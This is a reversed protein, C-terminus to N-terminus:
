EEEGETGLSFDPWIAKGLQGITGALDGAFDKAFKSAELLGEASVEYWRRNPSKEDASEVLREFEKAAQPQKEPPLKSILARTERELTQLLDRREGNSQQNIISTCNEMKAAVPGTFNGGSINQQIHDGSMPIIPKSEANFIFTTAAGEAEAKKPGRVANLAERVDVAIIESSTAGQAFHKPVRNLDLARLHRYGLLPADPRGPVPVLEDVTLGEIVSHMDEFTLRVTDLADRADIPDGLVSITVEKKEADGIVRARAGTAFELVCGHRWPGPMRSLQLHRRAIFSPVLAAPLVPYRYVFCLTGGMPWVHEPERESLLQPVLMRHQPNYEQTDYLLDFRRMVQVIMPHRAVAYGGKKLIRAFDNDTVLGGATRVAADGLVAYVAKTVWEPNLIATDRMAPPDDPRTPFYRVTGLKDWLDLLKEPRGPETEGEAECLKVYEELPITDQKTEELTRKIGLWINNMPERVGEIGLAETGLTERLKDIGDGTWCSTRLFGRIAPFKRRLAHEDPGAGHQDSKNVAVWIPAGAGFSTAMQLWYELNNQRDNARADAVLLYVARRTLFFAHTSHYIEQGGFDWLNLRLTEDSENGAALRGSRLPLGWHKQVIGDTKNLTQALKGETLALVLSSKGVEAEGLVLVKAENLPRAGSAVMRTRHAFYYDLIEAPPKPRAKQSHVDAYTPGLVEAPLGLKPNEHLYLGRLSKLKTIELPLSTLQNNDLWLDVLETLQGIESPLTRLGLRSLDLVGSRKRLANAIRDRAQCLGHSDDSSSESEPPLPPSPSVSLGSNRPDDSPNESKPPSPPNPPLSLGSNRTRRGDLAERVAERVAERLGRSDDGSDDKKSFWPLKPM